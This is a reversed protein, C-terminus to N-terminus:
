AAGNVACVRSPCDSATCRSSAVDRAGPAVGGWKQPPVAHGSCRRRPSAKAQQYPWKMSAFAFAFALAFAFAFAFAFALALAFAFVLAFAL